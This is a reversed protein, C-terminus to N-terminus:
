EVIELEDSTLIGYNPQGAQSEQDMIFLTMEIVRQRLNDVLSYSSEFPKFRDTMGVELQELQSYPINQPEVKDLKYEVENDIFYYYGSSVFLPHVKTVDIKLYVIGSVNQRTKPHTFTKETKTRLTIM